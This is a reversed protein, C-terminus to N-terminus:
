MTAPSADYKEEYQLLLNKIFLPTMKELLYDDKMFQSVRRTILEQREVTQRKVGAKWTELWDDRLQGWTKIHNANM